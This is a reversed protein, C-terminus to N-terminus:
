EDDGIAHFCGVGSAVGNTRSRSSVRARADVYKTASANRREEGEDDDDDYGDITVGSAVDVGRLDFDFDDDRARADDLSRSPSARARRGDDGESTSEDIRRTAVRRTMVEDTTWADITRRVDDSTTSEDDLRSEVDVPGM